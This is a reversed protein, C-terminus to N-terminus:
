FLSDDYDDRKVGQHADILRSIIKYTTHLIMGTLLITTLPYGSAFEFFNM